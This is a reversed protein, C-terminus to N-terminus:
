LQGALLKAIALYYYTCPIVTIYAERKDSGGRVNIGMCLYMGSDDYSVSEIYLTNLYTGAETEVVTTEDKVVM